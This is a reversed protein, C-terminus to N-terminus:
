YLYRFGKRRAMAEEFTIGELKAADEVRQIGSSDLATREDADLRRNERILMQRIVLSLGISIVLAGMSIAMSQHYNPGWSSKWTYSGMVTGLNGLGNVIGIAAARKAPPRPITNAVWTLTIGSGVYGLAMLFLSIYRAPTSTTSLSVIFGLVVSWWWGSIHFFREGSKDAHWANLSCIIAAIIWPPAALLLASTAGSTLTRTLTPFFQGFSLGLLQTITMLVFVGVKPDKLALVLGRISSDEISDKDAEGADESLRAQSVRTEMPSMWRTNHPYDPLIWMAAIGVVVTLAGEIFFLWRWARIGRKGEM